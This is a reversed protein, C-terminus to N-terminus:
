KPMDEFCPFMDGYTSETVIHTEKTELNYMFQQMVFGEAGRTSSYIIYKEDPSWRPYMDVNFDDRESIEVENKVELNELDFEAYAIISDQYSLPDGNLDKMYCVKTESPSVSLKHVPYKNPRKVDQYTQTKPDLLHYTQIGPVAYGPTLPNLIFFHVAHIRWIFIRGDKLGSEAWEAYGVGDRKPHTLMKESNLEADPPVTYIQIGLGSHRYRNFIIQNTGDRTWTPNVNAYTDDVLVKFGTGDVNIVCIEDHYLNFPGFEVEDWLVKKGLYTGNWRFFTLMDGEKSWSPKNDTEGKTLIHLNDGDHITIQHKGKEDITSSAWRHSSVYELAAERGADEAKAPSALYLAAMSLVVFM